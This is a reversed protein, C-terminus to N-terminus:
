GREERMREELRQFLERHSREATRWVFWALVWPVSLVEFVETVEGGEGVSWSSRTKTTMWGAGAEVEAVVGSATPTIHATCTTSTEYGFPLAIRYILTYVETRPSSAATTKTRSVSAPNLTLLFDPQQLRSLVSPNLLTASTTLTANHRRQTIEM